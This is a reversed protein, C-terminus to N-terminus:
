QAASDTSACFPGLHRLGIDVLMNVTVKLQFRDAYTYPDVIVDMGVWDAIILDSWNGFVMKDGPVQQTSVAAYGNVEGYRGDLPGTRKSPEWIFTPFTSAALKPKSKLKAKANPTTIYACNAPSVNQNSLQTEFDIVHPWDAAGGFAVAGIGPSNVIGLPQGANGTGAIAAADLAVGVQM